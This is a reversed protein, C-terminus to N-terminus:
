WQDGTMFPMARRVAEDFTAPAPLLSVVLFSERPFDFFYGPHVRVRAAELLRLALAEESRISPVQVVASWGGEPELLTLSPQGRISERLHNLNRNIRARIAARIDCGAELLRAAALQVPTGVTLYADAIVSLRAIADEPWAAPGSVVIWALKMQPLGASKSLGGLTFTLARPEGLLSAADSRPSLRYDQFVEDSILAFGRSSALDVLWDRDGASLISGTPNNPSVVILARTRATLAREVSARDISWAGHPDLQYPLARVAEFRTLWDFLPYSPQPVLVDDGADAVLKFLLAYAESTSSTLVIRHHDVVQGQRACAQAVALRASALGLPDPRYRGGEPTVLAASLDPYDLGVATPNTETLDWLPEAATEAAAVARTLANEALSSPLRTSFM